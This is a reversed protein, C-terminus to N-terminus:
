VPLDRDSMRGYNVESQTLKNATLERYMRILQQGHAEFAYSAELKMRAARGMEYRLTPNAALFTMREKLAEADGMPFLLGTQRDEIQEPLGGVASAIVPKGCAMAELVSMSCNENCQSPVVVFAAERILKKLAEGTQYGPFQVHPYRRRATEALPGDGLVKLVMSKGNGAEAVMRAHADLLVEIGKEPSIRGFYLAYGRDTESPSFRDTEIGNPMVRIKEPDVRYRAMLRAQFRSPSLFRDVAGYSGAWRHWYAELSLLLSKARSNEQCKRTTAKWFYRGQCENCIADNHIMLYAPCILKYDHLTLVVPIGARKLLPIIAPTLQHYINHLHAIDPKEKEILARLKELAERNRIFRVGAGCLGFFRRFRSGSQRKRYDANSVFYDSFPSALNDPHDMSFDVVEHGKKLLYEREQFFVRESGGNLFFFKNAFLIKM